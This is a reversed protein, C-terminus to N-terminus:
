YHICLYCTCFKPHAEIRRSIELDEQERQKSIGENECEDCVIMGAKKGCLNCGLDKRVQKILEAVEKEHEKKTVM